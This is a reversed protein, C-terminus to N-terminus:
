NEIEDLLIEKLNNKELFIFIARLAFQDICCAGCYPLSKLLNFGFIKLKLLSTGLNQTTRLNKVATTIEGFVKRLLPTRLGIHCRNVQPKEM